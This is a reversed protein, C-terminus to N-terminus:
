NLNQSDSTQSLYWLIGLVVALIAGGLVIAFGLIILLLRVFGGKKKAPQVPEAIPASSDEVVADPQEAISPPEAAVPEATDDAPDIELTTITDPVITPDDNGAFVRPTYGSSRRFVPEPMVWENAPKIPPTEDQQTPTRDDDPPAPATGNESM